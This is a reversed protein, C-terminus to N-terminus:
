RRWHKRDWLVTAMLILIGALTLVLGSRENPTM